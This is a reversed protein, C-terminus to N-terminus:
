KPLYFVPNKPKEGQRVEFHVHPGEARGTQGVRAITQGRTVQTGEKVLNERNHAYITVLGSAHRIIVMNGYGRQGGGSYIVAGADSAVIATGLPAAIDIGDHRRSGRVGFRSTVIGDVPWGLVGRMREPVAETEAEVQPPAEKVVAVEHTAGPIFIVDGARASEPKVIDNLGLLDEASVHYARAVAALTEGPKLHYFLGDGEVVPQLDQPERNGLVTPAPACAASFAWSIVLFKRL